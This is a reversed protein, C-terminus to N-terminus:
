LRSHRRVASGARKPKLLLQLVDEDRREPISEGAGVWDHFASRSYNDPTHGSLQLVYSDAAAATGVKPRSILQVEENEFRISNGACWCSM